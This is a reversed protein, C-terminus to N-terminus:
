ATASSKLFADDDKLFEIIQNYLGFKRRDLLLAKANDRSFPYDEGHIKVPTWSLMRATFHAANSERIEEPTKEEIIVKKNNARSQTQQRAERLARKSVEDNYAVTVPHGPGAFMIKWTSPEGTGPHCVIMEAADEAEFVAIDFIEAPKDALPATSKPTSM